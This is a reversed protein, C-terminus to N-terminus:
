GHASGAEPFRGGGSDRETPARVDAAFERLRSAISREGDPTGLGTGCAPSVMVSPTVGLESPRIPDPPATDGTVAVVGPVARIGLLRLEWIMDNLLYGRHEPRGADFSLLDPRIAKILSWPIAGCIHMGFIPSVARIPDWARVVALDPVAALGPEDVVVIATLGLAAIEAVWRAVTGGTWRALDLALGALEADSRGLGLGFALTVPGTVQLKVLGHIPPTARLSAVFPEWAAPHARQLEPSFGCRLPDATLWEAVMDGDIMPLQPCFPVDYAARVHAVAEVPDTFPLSGVGTTACAPLRLLPTM